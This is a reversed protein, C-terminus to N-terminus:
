GVQERDVLSLCLLRRLRVLRHNLRQARREAHTCDVCHGGLLNPELLVVLEQLCADLELARGDTLHAELPVALDTGVSRGGEGFSQRESEGLTRSRGGGLARITSAPCSPNRAFM